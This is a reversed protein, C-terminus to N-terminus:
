TFILLSFIANGYFHPLLKEAELFKPEGRWEGPFDFFVQGHAGM